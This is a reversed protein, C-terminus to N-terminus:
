LLCTLTVLMGGEISPMVREKEVGRKGCISERM